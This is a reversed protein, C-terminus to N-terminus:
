LIYLYRTTWFLSPLVREIGGLQNGKMPAKKTGLVCEVFTECAAQTEELREEVDDCLALFHNMAAFALIRWVEDM